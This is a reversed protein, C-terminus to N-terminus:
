SPTGLVLSKTAAFTWWHFVLVSGMEECGKLSSLQSFTNCRELSQMKRIAHLGHNADLHQYSSHCAHGQTLKCIQWRCRLVEICGKISKRAKQCDRTHQQLGLTQASSKSDPLLAVSCQSTFRKGETSHCLDGWKSALIHVASHKLLDETWRKVFRGCQNCLGTPRQDVPLGLLNPAKEIDRCMRSQPRTTCCGSCCPTVLIFDSFQRLSEVWVLSM